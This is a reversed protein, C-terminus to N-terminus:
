SLLPAQSMSRSGQGVCSLSSVRYNNCITLDKVAFYNSLSSLEEPMLTAFSSICSYSYLPYIKCYFINPSYQRELNHVSTLSVNMNTRSIYCERARTKPVTSIPHFQIGIKSILLKEIIGFDMKEIVIIQWYSSFIGIYRRNIIKGISSTPQKALKHRPSLSRGTM